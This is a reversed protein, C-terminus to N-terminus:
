LVKGKLCYGIWDRSHNAPIPEVLISQVTNISLLDKRLRDQISNSDISWIRYTRSKSIPVLAHIHHPKRSGTSRFISSEDFEYHIFEEFPIAYERNGENGEILRKFKNLVRTRYESEWKEPRAIKGGSKFVITFAFLDWGERRLEFWNSWALLLDNRTPYTKIWPELYEPKMSTRKILELYLLTM